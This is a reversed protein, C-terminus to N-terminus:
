VMEKTTENYRCDSFLLKRLVPPKFPLVRGRWLSRALAPVTFGWNYYASAFVVNGKAPYFNWSEEEEADGNEDKDEDNDENANELHRRGSVVSAAAANVSQYGFM